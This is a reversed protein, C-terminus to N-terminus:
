VMDVDSGSRLELLGNLADERSDRAGNWMPDCLEQQNVTTSPGATEWVVTSSHQAPHHVLSRYYEQRRYATFPSYTPSPVTIPLPPTHSQPQVPNDTEPNHNHHHSPHPYANTTTARYLNDLFASIRARRPPVMPATHDAHTPPPSATPPPSTIPTFPTYHSPHNLFDPTYSSGQSSHGSSPSTTILPSPCPVSPEFVGPPPVGNRGGGNQRHQKGERWEERHERKTKVRNGSATGSTGAVANTGSTGGLGNFQIVADRVPQKGRVSNRWVASSLPENDDSSSLAFLGKMDGSSGNTEEGTDSHLSSSSSSSSSHKRLYYKKKHFKRRRKLRSQLSNDNSSSSSHGCISDNKCCHKPKSSSRKSPQHRKRKLRIKLPLVTKRDVMYEDHRYCRSHSKDRRRRTGRSTSPGPDYSEVEQVSSTDLLLSQRIASALTPTPTQTVEEPVPQEVQGLGSDGESDSTDGLLDVITPPPPTQLIVDSDNGDSDDIEIVDNSTMQTSTGPQPQSSTTAPYEAPLPTPMFIPFRFRETTASTNTSQSDLLQVTSDSSDSSTQDDLNINEIVRPGHVCSRDYGIMDLPSRMYNYFEHAFHESEHELFPQLVERLMYRSLIHHLPLAALIQDILVAVQETTAHHMLVSLERNLWPVLRAIAGENNRYFDPTAERHMDAGDPNAVVWLGQEYISRRYATSSVYSRRDSRTVRGPRDAHRHMRHPFAEYIGLPFTLPHTSLMQQIALEGRPDVTFTTRFQFHRPQPANPLYYEPEQPREIIHEDYEYNSRVNHIISVFARKCLPCVAKVKSWQLLCNFCFQHLCIDPMCKNVFAGLCIACSPPPSSSSRPPPTHSQASPDTSSSPIANSTIYSSKNDEDPRSCQTPPTTGVSNDVHSINM